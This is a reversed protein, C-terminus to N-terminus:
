GQRASSLDYVTVGDVTTATFTQAVWAAIQGSADSGGDARFGGGGIFYHVRGDAVYRQFQALTPSPDSGNFGGIPMVPEGTALQYGSANNSGVTAAVWTYDDADATLLATMEASPERADLLGGMGGRQGRSGGNQGTGGNQGGPMAPPQGGGPFGPVAGTGNSGGDQGGPLGPFAGTGGGPFGPFQGNGGGPFGPFEGSGGGPMRGGPFGGRGGPGFGGAVFPGASPIAGTHPTAATQLAYAAPGALGVALGVGVVVAGLWRGARGGRWAPTILSNADAGAGGGSALERTVPAPTTRPLLSLLLLLAAVALGTVLVTTRLWPYWEPSRGLLHWSWWTTVALTGTLSLTAVLGRWRGAFAAAPRRRRVPGAPASGGDAPTVGAPPVPGTPAVGAPPVPGTPAVGAPPVPGTPAVGAPPVPGTPEVGAPAPVPATRAARWLLTVGIGVIGGIAPALAVTYYAHFIGSMFSFILGTVLLWGGWLLLGARTRDTRPARGALWLGAVLLILAAPLLWSIQGGVETDFMRLLGAQGSFPGGGGGGPRAGGGVSGVEDGTIRGLGNYGLTLELISNHQSGGIYPRASAPVLEVIAVWWGASVVVALGALLLHRIRRGPGTPAALLYVGAFVPIVLFAQLMKTLFGLGVLTGTLALWRASATEVARVTAYAAAVLLFVLLADPNNFRFMLTAVPTLALVAGALLGAAPGYWRRVAAYLVGVSAVGLLAQPVLISWSSLGFLRVSLAMLWLSAPTKDVTISNAADSSGYFFAEWSQSGAQVAASYFANGWGSAGLGWLYLLGTAALLGLLAPRAWRPDRGPPDAPPPTPEPVRTAGPPYAPPAAGAETAPPVATQATLLSESRDM